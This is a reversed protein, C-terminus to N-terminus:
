GTSLAARVVRTAFRVEDSEDAAAMASDLAQKTADCDGGLVLRYSLLVNAAALLTEKKSGVLKREAERFVVEAM